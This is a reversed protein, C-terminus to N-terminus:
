ILKDFALNGNLQITRSNEIQNGLRQQISLPSATWSYNTQYTFTATTWDLFPLKDIPITWNLNFNQTFRNMNGFSFIQDKVDISDRAGEDYWESNKHKSGPAENIFTNALANYQLTLSKALDFKLDYNRDWNWSKNFTPRIKIVGLSKDRLKMEGYSRAM